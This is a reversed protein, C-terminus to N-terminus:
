ETAINLRLIILRRVAASVPVDHKLAYADLRKTYSSPLWVTVPTLPDIACPRGRRREGAERKELRRDDVSRREKSM